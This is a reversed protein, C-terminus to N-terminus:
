VNEKSSIQIYGFSTMISPRSVTHREYRGHKFITVDERFYNTEEVIETFVRDGSYWCFMDDNGKKKGAFEIKTEFKKNEYKLMQTRFRKKTEHYPDKGYFTFDRVEAFDSSQRQLDTHMRHCKSKQFFIVFQHEALLKGMLTPIFVYVRDPPGWGLMGIWADMVRFITVTNSESM